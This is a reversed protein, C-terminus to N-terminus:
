NRSMDTQGMRERIRAMLDQAVADINTIQSAGSIADFDRGRKDPLWDGAASTTMLIINTHSPRKKLFSEIDNDVGWALCTNIVVIAPYDGTDLEQLDNVGVTKQPIGATALHKHLEAVLMEKYESSRSAILVTPRRGMDVSESTSIDKQPWLHRPAACGTLLLMIVTGICCRILTRNSTM